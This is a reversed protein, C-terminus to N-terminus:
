YINLNSIFDKYIVIEDIKLKAKNEDNLNGNINIIDKIFSNSDNFLNNDESSLEVLFINFDIKVINLNFKENKMLNAIEYNNLMYSNENMSINKIQIAFVNKFVNNILDNENKLYDEKSQKDVNLNIKGHESEVLSLNM